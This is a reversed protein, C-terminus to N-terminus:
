WLFASKLLKMMWIILSQQNNSSPKVNVDEREWRLTKKEPVFCCIFSWKTINNYGCIYSPLLLNEGDNTQYKMFYYLFHLIELDLKWDWQNWDWQELWKGNAGDRRSQAVPPTCVVTSDTNSRSVLFAGESQWLHACVSLYSQLSCQNWNSHLHNIPSNLISRSLNTGAPARHCTPTPIQKCTETVIILLIKKLVLVLM